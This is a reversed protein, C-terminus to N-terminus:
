LFKKKEFFENFFYCSFSVSYKNMLGVFLDKNSSPSNQEESIVLRNVLRNAAKKLM